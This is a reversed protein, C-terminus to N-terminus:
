AGTQPDTELSEGSREFEFGWTSADNTAGGIDALNFTGNLWKERGSNNHLIHLTAEADFGVINALREVETQGADQEQTDSDFEEFGEASITKARQTALHEAAGATAFTTTDTSEKDSSITISNLGGIEVYATGDYVELTYNRALVKSSM